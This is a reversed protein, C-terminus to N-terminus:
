EVPREDSAGFLKLLELMREKNAQRAAPDILGQAGYPLMPTKDFIPSSLTPSKGNGVMAKEVFNGVKEGAKARLYQLGPNNWDAGAGMGKLGLGMGVAGGIPGQAGLGVAGLAASGGAKLALNGLAGKGQATLSADPSQMPYLSPLNEGKMGGLVAPTEAVHQAALRRAVELDMQEPMDPLPPKPKLLGMAEDRARLEAAKQAVSEPTPLPASAGTPQPFKLGSGEMAAMRKGALDELLAPDLNPLPAAAAKLGKAQSAKARRTIEARLEDPSMKEPAVPLGKDVTASADQVYQTKAPSVTKDLQEPTWEAGLQEANRIKTFLDKKEAAHKGFLAKRYEAEIQEQIQGENASLIKQADEPSAGSKKIAAVYEGYIKKKIGEKALLRDKVLKAEGNNATAAEKTSELLAKKRYPMMEDPAKAAKDAAAQASARASENEGMLSRVKTGVRSETKDALDQVAKDMPASISAAEKALLYDKLSKAKGGAWKAGAGIGHIVPGLVGGVAAGVLGQEGADKAVGGLTDAESNGVGQLAGGVGGQFVGNVLAGGVGKAKTLGKPGPAMLSGLANSGPNDAVADRYMKATEADTQAPPLPETYEKPFMARDMLESVPHNWSEPVLQEAVRVAKGGFGYTAGQFGSRIKQDLSNPDSPAPAQAHPSPAPPEAQVTPTDVHQAWDPDADQHEPIVVAWDPDQEGSM